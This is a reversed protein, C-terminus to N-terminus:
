KNSKLQIASLFFENEYDIIYSKITMKRKKDLRIELFLKGHTFPALIKKIKKEDKAFSYFGLIKEKFFENMTFFTERSPFFGKPTPFIKEVFYRHGRKHGILLGDPNSQSYILGLATLAQYAERSLHADM